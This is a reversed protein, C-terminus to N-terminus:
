KRHLGLGALVYGSAAAAIQQALHRQLEPLAAHEAAPRELTIAGDPSLTLVGWGPMVEDTFVTGEPIALYLENAVGNQQIREMRTGRYLHESIEQVRERSKQYETNQSHGYDWDAYEEFLARSDRLEPEQSRIVGELVSMRRRLAALENALADPNISAAYCERRTLACVVACTRTPVALNRRQFRAQGAWFAAVDARDTTLATPVDMAFGDPSNRQGTLWRLVARRLLLRKVAETESQRPSPRRFKVYRPRATMATTRLFLTACPFHWRCRFFGVGESFLFLGPPTIGGLGPLHHHTM